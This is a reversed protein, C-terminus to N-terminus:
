TESPAGEVEAEAEAAPDVTWTWTVPAYGFTARYGCAALALSLTKVTMNHDGRLMKSVFSKKKGMRTALETRGMRRENIANQITAQATALATEQLIEFDLDASVDADRFLTEAMVWQTM